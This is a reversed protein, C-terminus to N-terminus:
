ATPRVWWWFPGNHQYGPLMEKVAQIVGFGEREVHDDGCLV